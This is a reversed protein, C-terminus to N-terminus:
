NRLRSVKSEEGDKCEFDKCTFFDVDGNDLGTNATSGVGGVNTGTDNGSSYSRETVVM